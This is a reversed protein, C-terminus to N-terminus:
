LERQKIKGFRVTLEAYPYAGNEESRYTNGGYYSDSYSTHAYLMGLAGSVRPGAVRLGIIGALLTATHYPSSERLVYTEDLLSIRRGIRTAGGLMIVPTRAFGGYGAFGYGLGATVNHDAGGYTANGYAIGGSGSRNFLIMAGGGARVKESVPFSLKPTLAFFNDAGAEPIITAIAGMSFNDSFGYNVSLLFVEMNQVYGEGRRLNRATPGFFLRNGNGVDDFGRRAQQATLLAMEKLDHRQVRVRGLDKTEFELEDASITRLLGIFHNGSRLEVSYSRGISASTPDTTAPRANSQPVGQTYSATAATATPRVLPGVVQIRRAIATRVALFEAATFPRAVQSGNRLTTRLQIASDAAQVQEFQADQFENAGYYPFLGFHTKEAGDIVEGVAPSVVIVRVAPTQALAPGSAVALVLASCYWRLKKNM